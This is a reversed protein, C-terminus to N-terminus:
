IRKAKVWLASSRKEELMDLDANSRTIQSISLYLNDCEKAKFGTVASRTFPKSKAYASYLIVVHM